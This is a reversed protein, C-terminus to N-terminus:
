KRLLKFREYPSDAHWNEESVEVINYANSM